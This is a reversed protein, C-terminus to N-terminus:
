KVVVPMALLSKPPMFDVFGRATIRGDEVASTARAIRTAAVVGFRVTAARPLPWEILPWAIASFPSTRSM